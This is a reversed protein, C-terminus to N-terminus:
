KKPVLRIQKLNMVAQRPMTTPKVIVQQAGGDIQIEGLTATTFKNWAGTGVVKGTVKSQGVAM